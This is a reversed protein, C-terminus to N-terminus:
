KNYKLGVINATFEDAPLLEGCSLCDRYEKRNPVEEVDEHQKFGPRPELTTDWKWGVFRKIGADLAEFNTVMSTKEPNAKVKLKKAM